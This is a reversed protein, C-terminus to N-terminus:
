DVKLEKYLIKGSESRPIKDIHRVHFVTRVIKTRAVIFDIIDEEDYETDTTYIILQSDDGM